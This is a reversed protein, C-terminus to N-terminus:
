VRGSRIMESLSFCCLHWPQIAPHSNRPPGPTSGPSEFPHPPPLPPLILASLALKKLPDPPM